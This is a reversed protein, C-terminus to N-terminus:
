DLYVFENLNLLALCFDAYASTEADPKAALLRSQRALFEHALRLEPATPARSFALRYALAVREPETAAGKLVRAAFARADAAMETSNMLTLAQTATTSTERRPCSLNTDPADLSELAPYRLNRRVFIYLSRRAQEAPDATVPWAATALGDPLPPFVGPGGMKANLRGSVALAGDRVAEAELRVRNMRSFWANDPDAACTAASARTSQKYANSNLILRHLRKLSWPAAFDSALWDLLEPHTPEDGRVGFDSPTPVIGRGFHHQWVRNVLVRATLPNQPSAIWRALATRRGTTRAPVPAPGPGASALITPFGPAVEEARNSPEGRELLYTPPAVPGEEDLGLATPLSPVPEAEAAKLEEALKEYAPRASPALRPAVEAPAPEVLPTNKEVFAQQDVTREAEPVRFAAAVEEPLKAIKVDRLALRADGALANMRDHLSRLRSERAQRAAEQRAIEIPTGVPLDKRFKAPTFFAQLRYYDAQPIPEYKHNHCRACGITMGLFVLGTTDTIDNLTNQRRAAQDAADTMDPGLLNMGTAVRADPDDPAIEDGAIQEAIFRDYPKDANFARVVYDRYRWADPRAEDHEYGNSDAYRALDLWHTAWREGYAPSALYRDVMRAYADPARDTLFADLEAPTPPLGTLDYAVRRVLEERSATAAPQLHHAELKALVFADIPNRVWARNRVAPVAPMRPRKWAWHAQQTPTFVMADRALAAGAALALSAALGAPVLRTRPM